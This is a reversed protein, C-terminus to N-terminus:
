SKLKSTVRALYDVILFDPEDNINGVEASEIEIIQPRNGM